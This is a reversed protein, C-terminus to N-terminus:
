GGKSSCTSWRHPRSLSNGSHKVTWATTIANGCETARVQEKTAVGDNVILQFSLGVAPTLDALLVAHPVLIDKDTWVASM